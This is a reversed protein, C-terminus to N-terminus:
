LFAIGQRCAPNDMDPVAGLNLAIPIADSM